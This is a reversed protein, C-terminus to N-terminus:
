SVAFETHVRKRPLYFALVIQDKPVGAALLDDVIGSETGDHQIWIKGDPKIDVHIVSGHLRHYDEWGVHVLEYHHRQSDFVTEIDVEGYAPKFQAYHNLVSMVIEAHKEILSEM